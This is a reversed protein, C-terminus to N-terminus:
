DTWLCIRLRVMLTLHEFDFFWIRARDADRLAGDLQPTDLNSTSQDLSSTDTNMRAYLIPLNGCLIQNLHVQVNLMRGYFCMLFPQVRLADLYVCTLM